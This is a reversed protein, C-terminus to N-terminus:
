WFKWWPKRILYVAFGSCPGDTTAPELAAVLALGTDTPVSITDVREAFGIRRITLVHRGAAVGTLRSVGNRDTLGRLRGDLSLQSAEVTRESRAEMTRVAVVGAPPPPDLTDVALAAPPPKPPCAGPVDLENVMVTRACAGALVLAVVAVRRPTRMVPFVVARVVRACPRAASM